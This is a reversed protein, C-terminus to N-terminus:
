YIAMKVVGALSQPFHNAERNIWIKESMKEMYIWKNGSSTIDLMENGQELNRPFIFNPLLPALM